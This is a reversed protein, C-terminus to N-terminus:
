LALDNMWKLDIHHHFYNLLLNCTNLVLTVHRRKNPHLAHVFTFNQSVESGKINIGNKDSNFSNYTFTM